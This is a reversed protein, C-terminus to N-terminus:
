SCFKQPYGDCSKLLKNLLVTVKMFNKGFIPSLSHGHGYNECCMKHFNHSNERVCKHCINRSLLPTVLYTVLSNIQRFIKKTIILSIERKEVSTCKKRLFKTFVVKERIACVCYISKVSYKEFYLLDKIKATRWHAIAFNKMM